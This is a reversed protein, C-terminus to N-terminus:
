FCSCIAKDRLRYATLFCAALASAALAESNPHEETAWCSVSIQSGKWSVSAFISRCIDFCWFWQVQAQQGGRTQRRMNAAGPLPFLAPFSFHHLYLFNKLFLISQLFFLDILVTIVVMKYKLYAYLAANYDQLVVYCRTWYHMCYFAKSKIIITFHFARCPLLAKVRQMPSIFHFSQM